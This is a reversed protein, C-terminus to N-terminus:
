IMDEKGMKAPDVCEKPSEWYNCYKCSFPHSEWEPADKLNEETLNVAEIKM